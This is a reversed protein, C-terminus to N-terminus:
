RGEEPQPAAQSDDKTPPASQHEEQSNAQRGEEPQPAARSEDKAPPASRQETQQESPPTDTTSTPNDRNSADTNPAETDPLLIRREAEQLQDFRERQAQLAQEYPAQLESPLHQGAKQEAAQIQDFAQRQGQLFEEATPPPPAGIPPPSTDAAPPANRSPSPQTGLNNELEEQGSSWGDVGDSADNPIAAVTNHDTGPSATDSAAPPASAPTTGGAPPATVILSVPLAPSSEPGSSQLSPRGGDGGSHVNEEGDLGILRQLLMANQEIASPLAAVVLPNTAALAKTLLEYDASADIIGLYSLARRFPDTPGFAQSADADSGLNPPWFGPPVYNHYRYFLLSNLVVILALVAIAARRTNFREMLTTM